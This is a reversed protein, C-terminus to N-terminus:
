RPPLVSVISLTCRTASPIRESVSDRM